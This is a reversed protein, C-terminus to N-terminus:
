QCERDGRTGTVLGLAIGGSHRLNGLQDKVQDSLAHKAMDMLYVYSGMDSNGNLVIETYAALLLDSLRYIDGARISEQIDKDYSAKIPNNPSAEYDFCHLKSGDKQIGFGKTPM